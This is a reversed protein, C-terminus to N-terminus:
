GPLCNEFAYTASSSAALLECAPMQCPSKWCGASQLRSAFFALLLSMLCCLECLLGAMGASFFPLVTDKALFPLSQRGFPFCKCALHNSQDVSSLMAGSKSKFCAVPHEVLICRCVIGAQGM